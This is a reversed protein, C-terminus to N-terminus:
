MQEVHDIRRTIADNDGYCYWEEPATNSTIAIRRPNWKKEGGKINVNMKYRDLCQLLLYRPMFKFDLDDFLVNENNRYGIFFGNAITVSDHDGLWQKAAKTKGSGPTGWYVRVEPKWDRDPQILQRFEEFRKGYQCWLAPSEMAIEVEPKGQKIDDFVTEIDSRRGQRPMEGFTVLDSEKSCYSENDTISGYMPEVHSNNFIKAVNKMSGRPTKFYCYLQRHKRETTPCIEDGYALYQCPDPVLNEVNLDMDYLTVCWWRAKKMM